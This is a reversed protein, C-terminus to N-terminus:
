ESQTLTEVKISTALPISNTVGTFYYKFDIFSPTTQYLYGMMKIKCEDEIIKVENNYYTAEYKFNKINNTLKKDIQNYSADYCNGKYFNILEEKIQTAKPISTTFITFVIDKPKTFSLPIFGSLLSSMGILIAYKYKMFFDGM